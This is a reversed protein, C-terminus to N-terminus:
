YRAGRTGYSGTYPNLNGRTRLDLHPERKLSSRSRSRPRLPALSSTSSVAVACFKLRNALNRQRAGGVGTVHAAHTQIHRPKDTERSVLGIILSLSHGGTGGIDRLM